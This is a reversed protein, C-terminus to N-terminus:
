LHPAQPSLAQELHETASRLLALVEDAEDAEGQKLRRSATELCLLAQRFPDPRLESDSVEATLPAVFRGPRSVPLHMSPDAMAPHSSAVDIVDLTQVAEASSREM